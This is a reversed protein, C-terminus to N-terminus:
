NHVFNHVYRTPKRYLVHFELTNRTSGFRSKTDITVFGWFRELPHEFEKKPLFKNM